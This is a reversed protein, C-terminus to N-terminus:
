VEGYGEYYDEWNTESVGVAQAAINRLETCVQTEYEWGKRICRLDEDFWSKGFEKAQEEFVAVFESVNKDEKLAERFRTVDYCLSEGFIDRITAPKYFESEKYDQNWTSEEEQKKRAIYNELIELANNMM